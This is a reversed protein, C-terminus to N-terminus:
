ELWKKHKAKMKSYSILNEQLMSEEEIQLLENKEENSLANWLDGDDQLTLNELIEYFKRLINDNDIKDILQHINKRIDTDM